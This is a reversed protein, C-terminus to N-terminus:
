LRCGKQIGCREYTENLKQVSASSLGVLPARVHAEGFGLRTMAHKIPVPNSEIFLDRFLPYYRQHLAAAEHVRGAEFGKQIAVMARPFLNSAVSVVGQAGISLMPLFLADDGSLVSMKQGSRSLQDLIESTYVVSGGADKLATIRPHAALKVVTEPALGVGTRGPVHYLMVGCGVADAVARFHAELGAQSPKNYYPTVLLLGDVGLDFALRSLEITDVTNNSGTGAFVKVGTGKLTELATRFLIGKEDMSLTPSEGTTGCVVVGTVQADCQDELIRRFAGLDLENQSTFPTILATFVGRM